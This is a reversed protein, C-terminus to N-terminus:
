TITVIQDCNKLGKKRPNIIHRIILSTIFGPAAVLDSRVAVLGNDEAAPSIIFRILKDSRSRTESDEEGMPCIVFCTKEPTLSDFNVEM